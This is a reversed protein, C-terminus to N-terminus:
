VNGGGKGEGNRLDVYHRTQRIDVVGIGMRELLAFVQDVTLGTLDIVRGDRTHLEIRRDPM